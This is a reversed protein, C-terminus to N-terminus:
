IGTGGLRGVAFPRYNAQSADTAQYASLQVVTWTWGILAGTNHDAYLYVEGTGMGLDNVKKKSDLPDVDKLYRSDTSDSRNLHVTQTSDLVTVRYREVNVGSYGPITTTVLSFTAPMDYIVMSHGTSGASTYVSILLDGTEVDDIDTIHQFAFDLGGSTTSNEGVIANYWHESDPTVWDHDDSPDDDVLASMVDDDLDPYSAKVLESVFGGCVAYVELTGGVYAVQSPSGYNNHAPTLDVFWDAATDLHDGWAAQAPTSLAFAALLTAFTRTIM